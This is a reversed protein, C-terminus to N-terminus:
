EFEIIANCGNRSDYVTNGEAVSIKTLGACGSFVREGISTVSAPITIGTLSTCNEFASVGIITVGDGISVSKIESAFAYWPVDEDNYGYDQM